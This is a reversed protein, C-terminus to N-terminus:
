KDGKLNNKGQSMELLRETRAHCARCLTVGNYLKFRLIENDKWPIIHHAHLDKISGCEQCKWGDRNKVDLGWQSKKCSGFSESKRNRIIGKKQKKPYETKKLCFNWTKHGKQFGKIPINGKKFQTLNPKGTRYKSAYCEKCTHSFWIQRKRFKELEKETGCIVCIRM